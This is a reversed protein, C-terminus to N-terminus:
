FDRAGWFNYFTVANTRSVFDPNFLRWEYLTYFTYSESSTPPGRVYNIFGPTICNDIFDCGEHAVKYRLTSQSQRRLGDMARRTSDQILKPVAATASRMLEGTQRYLLTFNLM